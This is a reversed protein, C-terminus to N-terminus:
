YKEEDTLCNGGVQQMNTLKVNMSWIVNMYEALTYKM